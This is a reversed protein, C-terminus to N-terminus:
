GYRFGLIPEVQDSTDALACPSVQPESPPTLRYAHDSSTTRRVTHGIMYRVPSASWSGSPWQEGPQYFTPSCRWNTAVNDPNVVHNVKIERQLLATAQLIQCQPGDTAPHRTEILISLNVQREPSLLDPLAWVLVRGASDVVIAPSRLLPLQDRFVDDPDCIPPFTRILENEVDVNLGRCKKSLSARLDTADWSM